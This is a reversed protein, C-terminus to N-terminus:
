CSDSNGLGVSIGLAADIQRLKEAGVNGMYEGLRSKDLTRLQELLVTSDRFLGCASGRLQVHTHLM